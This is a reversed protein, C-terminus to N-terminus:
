LYFFELMCMKNNEFLFNSIVKLLEDIFKAEEETLKPVCFCMKPLASLMRPFVDSLLKSTPSHFGSHDILYYYLPSLFM